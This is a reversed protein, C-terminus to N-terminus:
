MVIKITAQTSFLKHLTQIHDGSSTHKWNEISYWCRHLLRSTMPSVTGSGPAPLPLHGSGLPSSVQHVFTLTVPHRQSSTVECHCTLSAVCNTPCIDLLPATCLKIFLTLSLWYNLVLSVDANLTVKQIVGAETNCDVAKWLVRCLVFLLVPACM